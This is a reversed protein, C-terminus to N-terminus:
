HLIKGEMKYPSSGVHESNYFVMVKVNTHSSFLKYRIIYSGDQRDLTQVWVRVHGNAEDYLSITFPENGISSTISYFSLQMYM